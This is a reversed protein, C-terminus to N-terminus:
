LFNCPHSQGAEERFVLLSRHAHDTGGRLIVGPLDRGTGSHHFEGPLDQDIEVVVGPFYQDIEVVEDPLDQDIEVVEDPIILLHDPPPVIDQGPGERDEVRPSIVAQDEAEM